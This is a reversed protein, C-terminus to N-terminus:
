LAPSRDRIWQSLVWKEGSLPPLGAHLTAEDPKGARDVNAFFLAAGTEGAYSLKIKPFSTQGGEYGDNLYLLFTAIRQGFRQIEDHYAPNAPDLFDHHAKFRQGVAYQLIQTEEFLPVPLRTAAAIRNRIVETVVDMQMLQLSVSSNDRVPDLIQEGTARDFVTARRLRQRAIAMLWGCEAPTAFGKILRIRPDESVVIREGAALRQEIMVRRRVEAWFIPEPDTPPVPESSSDALLLLQCQATVSGLEAAAQLQDLCRDWSAPRVVGMADLLAAREAAGAHGGAAAAELLEVGRRVDDPPPPTASLLEVALEFQAEPEGSEAARELEASIPM